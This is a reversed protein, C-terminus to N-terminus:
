FKDCRTESSVDLDGLLKQEIKDLGGYPALLKGLSDHTLAERQATTLHTFPEGDNDINQKLTIAANIKIDKSKNNFFDSGSLADILWYIASMLGLFNYHFSWQTERERVYIGLNKSLKCLEPHVAPRHEVKKVPNSHFISSKTSMEPPQNTILSGTANLTSHCKQNGLKSIILQCCTALGLYDQSKDNQNALAAQEFLTVSSILKKDDPSGMLDILSIGKNLQTLVLTCIEYYHEFLTKNKLYNRAEKFDVIGYKKATASYGLEKLQPFIYWIWHTEKQGQSLEKKAQEYGSKSNQADIFRQLDTM